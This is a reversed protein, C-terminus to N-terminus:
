DPPGADSATPGLDATRRPILGGVILAGGLAMILLPWAWDPRSAWVGLDALMALLGVLVFLTGWALGTRNM